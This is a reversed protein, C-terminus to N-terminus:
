SRDYLDFQDGLKRIDKPDVNKDLCAAVLALECLHDSNPYSKSLLYVFELLMKM